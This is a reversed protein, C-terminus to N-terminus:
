RCDLSAAASIASSGPASLLELPTEMLLPGKGGPVFTIWFSGSSQFLPKPKLRIM